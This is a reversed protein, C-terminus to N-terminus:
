KMDKLRIKKITQHNTFNNRITANQILNINFSGRTELVVNIEFMEQINLWSKGWIIHQNKSNDFHRFNKM